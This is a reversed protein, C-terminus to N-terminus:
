FRITYSAMIANNGLNKYFAVSDDLYEYSFGLDGPGLTYQIGLKLQWVFAGESTALVSQPSGSSVSVDFYEMGLGVGAYAKFRPAIPWGFLANVVVPVQTLHGSGSTNVGFVSGNGFSNHLFGAELEPGVTLHEVLSFTYGTFLNVRAGPNLSTTGNGDILTLDNALNVGASAGLYFGNDGAHVITTGLLLGAFALMLAVREVCRPHTKGTQNSSPFKQISASTMAHTFQKEKTSLFNGGGAPNDLHGSYEPM